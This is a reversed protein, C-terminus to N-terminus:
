YDKVDRIFISWIKKYARFLFYRIRKYLQFRKIKKMRQKLFIKQRHARNIEISFKNSPENKNKLIINNWYNFDAKTLDFEKFNILNQINKLDKFKDLYIIPLGQFSLLSKHNLTIAISNSYIAEWIRHTDFGNGFPCLVFKFNNLRSIYEKKDFNNKELTTNKINRASLKSTFRHFPKTNLNFNVYIKNEKLNFEKFDYEKFDKEIPDRVFYDNNIGIPIPFLNKDIHNVNIAYWKGISKPKLEFLKKNISRDSQHTILTLNELKNYKEISIFFEEIFDTQCFIIDNSCIKFKNNIYTIFVSDNVTRKQIIELNNDKNKENFNFDSTTEAFILDSINSFKQSNIIEINM